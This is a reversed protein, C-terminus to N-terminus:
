GTQVYTQTYVHVHQVQQQDSYVSHASDRCHQWLTPSADNFAVYKVTCLRDSLVFRYEYRKCTLGRQSVESATDVREAAAVCDELWLANETRESSCLAYQQNVNERSRVLVFCSQFM